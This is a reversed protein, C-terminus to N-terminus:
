RSTESNFGPGEAGGPSQVFLGAAALTLYFPFCLAISVGLTPFVGWMLVFLAPKFIALLLALVATIGWRPAALM